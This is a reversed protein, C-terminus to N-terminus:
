METEKIRVILAQLRNLFGSSEGTAQFPHLEQEIKRHYQLFEDVTTLIAALADPHMSRKFQLRTEHHLCLALLLVALYGVAVNHHVEEVSHAKAISDVHALFLHLLRDLFSQGLSLPYLFMGRSVDSQETLNILAGLALIVSDLSKDKQVLVDETLDGFNTTVIDVLGEVVGSTAFADCLSPSSNTVNLVVRVYLTQVQSSIDGSPDESKSDLLGHLGPLQCLIEQNGEPLSDISATHAELISLGLTLLQSREPSLGNPANCNSSESQLLSVLRSLLSAPLGSPSTGKAQLTSLTLKLCRLALICPSLRSQPHEHFLTSSIQPVISQVSTQAFRSLGNTQARAVVSLDDQFDLLLTSIDLLKPWAATALVYPLPEGLAGLSYVSFALATSVLDLENSLCDVLRKDFGCEVFRYRLSPDLLKRCLQVFANCRGSVSSHTDEIDEFISEVAARYRANGGAQRLEHISRVAGDDNVDDETTILRSHSTNEHGLPQQASLDHSGLGVSLDDALSLDDLFSRQRAYTVKSGRLHSSLPGSSDQNHSEEQSETVPVSPLVFDPFKAFSHRALSPSSQSNASGTPSSERSPQEKTGLSDILRRRGPTTNEISACLGQQSSSPAQLNGSGHPWLVDEEISSRKIPDSEDPVPLDAKEFHPKRSRGLNTTARLKIPSSRQTLPRKHIESGNARPLRDGTRPENAATELNFVDRTETSSRAAPRQRSDNSAMNRDSSYRRRKRQVVWAEDEDDSSPFDYVNDEATSRTRAVTGAATARQPSALQKESNRSDRKSNLTRSQRPSSPSVIQPSTKSTPPHAYADLRDKKTNGYTVLKRSRPRSRDM